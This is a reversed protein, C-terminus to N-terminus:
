TVNEKWSMSSPERYDTLEGQMQFYKGLYRTVKEAGNINLHDGGDRTDKKWDIGVEMLNLDLYSVQNKEAWEMVGNHKAYTWNKASPVSVFMLRANEKQCLQYIKDLYTKTESDLQKKKDTAGMYDGGKYPKVDKSPKFGKYEEEGTEAHRGLFIKWRSHYQLVPFCQSFFQMTDGESKSDAYIGAYRFLCNTELVVVKPSQREFCASLIAYTDCLRQASTGVVYSTFGYESFLQKPSFSSYCESDGAFILDISNEKEKELACKKKNVALTNYQEQKPIFLVSALSMLVALGTLFLFGRIIRRGM